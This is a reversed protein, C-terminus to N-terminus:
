PIINSDTDADGFFSGWEDADEQGVVPTSGGRLKSQQQHQQPQQKQPQQNQQAKRLLRPDVVVSVTPQVLANAPQAALAPANVASVPAEAKRKRAAPPSDSNLMDHVTGDVSSQFKECDSASGTLRIAHTGQWNFAGIEAATLRKITLNFAHVQQELTCVIDEVAATKGPPHPICISMNIFTGGLSEIRFPLKAVSEKSRSRKPAKEREPERM